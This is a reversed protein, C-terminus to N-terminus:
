AAPLRVFMRDGSAACWLRGGDRAVVFSAIALSESANAPATAHSHLELVADREVIAAGIVLSRGRGTGAAVDIALALAHTAPPGAVNVSLDPLSGQWKVAAREAASTVLTRVAIVTRQSPKTLARNVNLLANLERSAQLAAEIPRLLQPDGNETLESLEDLAMLLGQLKSACDHHFVPARSGVMALQLLAAAEAAAHRKCPAGTEDVHDIVLETV